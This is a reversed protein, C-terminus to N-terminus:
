LLGGVACIEHFDMALAEFFKGLTLEPPRACRISLLAQAQRWLRRKARSGTGQMTEYAVALALFAMHAMALLRDIAKWSSFVRFKHAGFSRKFNFFYTEITWRASYLAVIERLDQRSAIPLSTALVMPELSRNLPTLHLIRVSFDKEGWTSLRARFARVASFISSKDSELWFARVREPKKRVIESILATRKGVTVNLKAEIRIVFDTKELRVFRHLLPKRRFGRDAVVIVEIGLAEEVLDKAKRLESEEIENQSRFDEAKETHLRRTIGIAARRGKLILATHIEQYGPAFVKEKAHQNNLKVRGIRPMSRKRGRSRPKAYGTSDIILIAKGKFKRLRKKGLRRLQGIVFNRQVPDINLQDQNLFKSLLKEALPVRKGTTRAIDQLVLSRALAIGLVAQHLKQSWNYPLKSNLLRSGLANPLIRKSLGASPIRRM